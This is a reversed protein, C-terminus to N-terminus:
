VDIFAFFDMFCSIQFVNSNPNKSFPGRQGWIKLPIKPYKPGLHGVGFFNPFKRSLTDFLESMGVSRRWIYKQMFLQFM